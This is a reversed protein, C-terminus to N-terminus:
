SRKFFFYYISNPVFITKHAKAPEGSVENQVWVVLRLGYFKMKAGLLM